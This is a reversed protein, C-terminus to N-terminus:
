QSLEESWKHALIGQGVSAVAQVASLNDPRKNLGLREMGLAVAGSCVVVVKIGRKRIEVVGQVLDRFADQSFGDDQLLM